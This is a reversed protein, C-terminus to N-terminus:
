VWRNYGVRSDKVFGKPSILLEPNVLNYRNQRLTPTLTSLPLQCATVKLTHAIKLFILFLHEFLYKATIRATV